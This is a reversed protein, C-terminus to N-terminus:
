SEAEKLEPERYLIKAIIVGNLSYTLVEIIPHFWDAINFGPEVLEIIANPITILLGIALGFLLGKFWWERLMRKKLNDNKHYQRPPRGWQVYIIVFLFSSVIASILIPWETTLKPIFTYLTENVGYDELGLLVTSSGVAAAFQEGTPPECDPLGTCEKGYNGNSM